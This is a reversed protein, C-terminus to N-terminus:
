LVSFRHLEFAWMALLVLVPLLAPVVLRRPRLLLLAIAVVVAPLGGPNAALGAHFHLRVTDEVSTTMGCLPCPIGTLRRFPCAFGPHGPLLPLLAGSCLMVVAAGRLDAPDLELRREPLALANM